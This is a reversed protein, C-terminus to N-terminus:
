REEKDLEELLKRARKRARSVISRMNDPDIGLLQGLEEHTYGLIYKGELALWDRRSMGTRLNEIVMSQSMDTGEQLLQEQIAELAAQDLVLLNERCRRQEQDLYAAKVTLEIYKVTQEHTLERLTDGNKMLRLLAEQVLDERESRKDTYVGAIYLLFHKYKEYFERFFERNKRTLPIPPKKKRM